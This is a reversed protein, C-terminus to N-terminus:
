GKIAGAAIGRVFWRGSLFYIVLPVAATLITAAMHVNYPREGFRTNVMANLEVTMPEMGRPAFIMGFLFDNWVGTAQLIVAVVLIPASMPLLIQLFIRWFGAGDIRAASLLERPLGSYYNRFVLTMVPLGFIVHVLVVGALSGSLGLGAFSFALPYIFLQYPIFAGVMLLAFLLEARHPRWFALAYGTVAGLMVSAAVSPILITVSNWFGPRLGECTLGTCSQSWAQRWASLDLHQPLAFISSSRIEPMTKLSTVVMVWLPLAFFVLSVGLFLWLGLRPLDIPSPSRPVPM